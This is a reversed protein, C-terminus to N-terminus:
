RVGGRGLGGLLRVTALLVPAPIGYKRESKEAASRWNNFFGDRQEFVACINNIQAPASACASLAALSAVALM